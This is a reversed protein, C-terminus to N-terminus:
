KDATTAEGIIWKVAEVRNGARVIPRGIVVFDSGNALARGITTVRKQDDETAFVARIGPTVVIFDKKTVASKVAKVEHPSAVVGDLGCEAALRALEVVETEVDGDIGVERLTEQNSSTLVTVGIVLPRAINERDCTARVGEVTQRMMQSGGITHINFMWVGLRAVEVAAKAVTNPIDHFKLDLFIKLGSNTFEHVLDPGASTFLQLGIKFAGVKGQLEAVIERAEAATAVDLAVIIQDKTDLQPYEAEFPKTM